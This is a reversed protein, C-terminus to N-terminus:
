NLKKYSLLIQIHIYYEPIFHISQNISQNIDCLLCTSSLLFNAM